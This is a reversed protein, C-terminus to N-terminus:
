NVSLLICGGKKQNSVVMYLNMYGSGFHLQWATGDDEFSGQRRGRMEGKTNVGEGGREMAVM